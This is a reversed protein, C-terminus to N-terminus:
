DNVDDRRLRFVRSISHLRECFEGYVMEVNDPIDEPLFETGWDHVVLLSDENQLEKSFTQLERPKNGNDCLVICPENLRMLKGLHTADAFVDMKTFDPVATPPIISDFTYFNMGRRVQTQAWLWWAFGGQCTGLEFIAKFKHSNLLQEWLVFDAWVQLAEVGGFSVDGVTEYRSLDQELVVIKGEAARLAGQTYTLENQLEVLRQAPTSAPGKTRQHILRESV